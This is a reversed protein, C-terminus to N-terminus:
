YLYIKKDFKSALLNKKDTNFHSFDTAQAHPYNESVNGDIYIYGVAGLTNLKAIINPKPDKIAVVTGEIDEATATHYLTENNFYFLKGGFDNHIDVCDITIPNDLHIFARNNEIKEIIGTFFASVSEKQGRLVSIDLTGIEHNIGKLVGTEECYLEKTSFISSKRALLKDKVVTQGIICHLHKIIEIPKIGLKQSVNVTIIEEQIIDYLPNGISIRDNQRFKLRAFPPILISALM